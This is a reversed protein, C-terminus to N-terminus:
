PDGPGNSVFVADFSENTFDYDHPVRKIRVPFELLSRIINEKMGCDIAIILKEGKGYEMPEKISVKKVWDISAFEEFQKPKAHLPTIAGPIVGQVRLLKTLARTDVGTLYPIHQEQLWNSLSGIAEHNSYNLALESMVVGSVHAHR